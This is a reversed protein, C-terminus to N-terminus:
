RSSSSSSSHTAEGTPRSRAAEIQQRLYSRCDGTGKAIDPCLEAACGVYRSEAEKQQLLSAPACAGKPDGSSLATLAEEFLADDRLRSTPHDQWVRRFERRARAPDALGDRFIKALQLRAEAYGVREYSGNLRSTEREALLRELSRIALTHRGASEDLRAAALLAEDWHAGRPYPFRNALDVYADRAAQYRGLAELRKARAYLLAEEVESGRVETALREAATLAREDGGLEAERELFRYAANRAMGSNPFRVVAARLALLGATKASRSDNLEARAYAARESREGGSGALREYIVEAADSDGARELSAAERYEAEHRARASPASQAAEHWHAAAGRYNKQSYAKEAADRASVYRAPLSPACGLALM